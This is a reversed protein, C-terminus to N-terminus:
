YALIKKIQEMKERAATEGRRVFETIKEFELWGLGELNPHIVVDAIKSAQQVFEQQMTEISGFIFDFVHLRRRRYHRSAEEQSLTINSAIIKHTSFELLIKTPLPHLIGGDLLMNTKIGVPEFFGPFACSAAVAKYLLGQQLVVARRRQFDFAVIKLTHKLDYFSLGGFADKFIAELRRAKMIGKFPFSFGTFAFSGLKRGLRYSIKEIDAISFGAAWLAAIIAGMSSGCIVDIAVGQEELVKLVGIHAFGYAAGSGLALGLTMEGVERSIRRLAKSFSDTDSFSIRAYLKETNLKKTGDFASSTQEVAELAIIKMKEKNLMNKANLDSILSQSQAFDAGGAPILFHVQDAPLIFIDHRAVLNAFPVEYLIFHYSESLFNLLSFFNDDANIRVSIADIHNHRIYGAVATEHFEGLPLIQERDVQRGNVTEPSSYIGIVKKQTQTHLSASLGYIYRQAAPFNLCVVAIKKSQFIEKPKFRAKVRQSLMRSFELSFFPEKKLYQKFASPPIQLIQSKEISRSTVSHLDDTLVSIIGFCTGRKLIEIDREGSESHTSVAVRGKLLIYLWDAASGQRYITDNNNYEKIQGIKLLRILKRRSLKNFPWISGLIVQVEKSDM